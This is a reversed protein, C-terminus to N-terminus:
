NHRWLIISHFLFESEAARLKVSYLFWCLATWLFCVHQIFITKGPLYFHPTKLGFMTRSWKEVPESFSSRHSLLCPPSPWPSQATTPWTLSSTTPTLWWVAGLQFERQPGRPHLSLLLSSTLAQRGREGGRWGRSPTSNTPDSSVFFFFFSGFFFSLTVSPLFFVGRAASPHCHAWAM